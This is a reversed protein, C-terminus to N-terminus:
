TSSPFCLSQSPFTNVLLDPKGIREWSAKCEAHLPSILLPGSSLWESHDFPCLAKGKEGRHIWLVESLSLSEPRESAACYAETKLNFLSLQCILAARQWAIHQM